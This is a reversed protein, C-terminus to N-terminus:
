VEVRGDLIQEESLNNPLRYIRYDEKDANYEFSYRKEEGEDEVVLQVDEREEGLDRKDIRLVKALGLVEKVVPDLDRVNYAM